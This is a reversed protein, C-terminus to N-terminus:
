GIHIDEGFKILNLIIFFIIFFSLFLVCKVHGRIKVFVEQPFFFPNANFNSLSYIRENKRTPLDLDLSFIIEPHDFDRNSILFSM